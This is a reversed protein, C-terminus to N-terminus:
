ASHDDAYHLGLWVTTEAPDTWEVRHRVHAPILLHDGPSLTLTQKGEIQLGASGKLLIIWEPRDQDYWQGPPTAQGTSIIRELKFRPSQLLPDFIEDPSSTPLNAFLNKVNM